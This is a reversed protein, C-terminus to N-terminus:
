PVGGDRYLREVSALQDEPLAGMSAAEAAEDM